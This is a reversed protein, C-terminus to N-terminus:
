QPATTERMSQPTPLFGFGHEDLAGPSYHTLNGEATLEKCIELWTDLDERLIITQYGLRGMGGEVMGYLGHQSKKAEVLKDDHNMADMHPIIGPHHRCVVVWRTNIRSFIECNPLTQQLKKVGEDTVNTDELDLEKLETLGKLHELGVDTVKTGRLELVRLSTLRKLHRLQEDEIWPGGFSLRELHRLKTLHEATSESLATSLGVGLVAPDDRGGPDDFEEELWTPPLAETSDNVASYNVVGGLMKIWAVAEKAGAVRDRNEQARQRRYQVGGGFSLTAVTMVLLLTRLSFRYWRRKPKPSNNM